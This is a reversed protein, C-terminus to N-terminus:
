FGKDEEYFVFKLNEGKFLKLNSKNFYMGCIKYYPLQFQKIKM